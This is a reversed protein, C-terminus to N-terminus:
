SEIDHPTFPLALLLEVKKLGGPVPTSKLPFTRVKEGENKILSNNLNKEIYELLM